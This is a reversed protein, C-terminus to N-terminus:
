AKNFKKKVGLCSLKHILLDVKSEIMSDCWPSTEEEAALTSILNGMEKYAGVLEQYVTAYEWEENPVNGAEYAQILAAIRVFETMTQGRETAGQAIAEGEKKSLWMQFKKDKGQM